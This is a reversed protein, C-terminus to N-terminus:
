NKYIVKSKSSNKESLEKQDESYIIQCEIIVQMAGSVKMILEEAKALSILNDGQPYFHFVRNRCELWTTWLERAVDTGCMKELDDFLWDEDRSREHIDPNLAKGIRFRKGKFTKENILGFDFFRQKLFGEYAKSIPFVIFSYDKWASNVGSEKEFLEISITVLEQQEKNLLSYWESKLLDRM